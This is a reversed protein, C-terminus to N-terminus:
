DYLGGAEALAPGLVLPVLRVRPCPSESEESISNSPLLSESFDLSSDFGVGLVDAVVGMAESTAAFLDVEFVTCPVDSEVRVEATEVSGLLSNVGFVTSPVDFVAGTKATIEASGPPSDASFMVCLVDVTARPGVVETGAAAKPGVM